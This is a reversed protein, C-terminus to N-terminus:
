GSRGVTKILFTHQEASDWKKYLAAMLVDYPDRLM